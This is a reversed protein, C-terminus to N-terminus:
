AIKQLIKRLRDRINRVIIESTTRKEYWEREKETVKKDLHRIKVKIVAKNDDVVMRKYILNFPFLRRTVYSSWDIIYAKGDDGVIINPARKLDCHAVGLDHMQEVTKKLTPFFIDPLKTGRRYELLHKGEIKEIVIALGNITRYFAPIGAIGKLKRYVKAERCILIRGIINRFFFGNLSFDKVIAREGNGEVVWIVPRTSTPERLIGCQKEPLNSLTLSEFM